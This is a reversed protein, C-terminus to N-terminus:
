VRLDKYGAMDLAELTVDCKVYAGNQSTVRVSTAICYHASAEIQDHLEDHLDIYDWKEINGGTLFTNLGPNFQAITYEGGGNLDLIGEEFAKKTPIFGSINIQVTIAQPDISAAFLSGICQARQVQISKTFTVSDCLGVTAADAASTGVRLKVNTARVVADQKTNYPSGTANNAM